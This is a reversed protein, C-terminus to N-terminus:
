IEWGTPRTPDWVECSDLDTLDVVQEPADTSSPVLHLAAPGSDIAPIAQNRDRAAARAREADRAQSHRSESLTTRESM